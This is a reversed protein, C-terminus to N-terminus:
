IWEVRPPQKPSIASPPAARGIRFYVAIVEHPAVGFTKAAESYAARILDEHYASFIGRGEAAIKQHFFFIGTILHLSLGMTTAELWLREMAEGARVFAMDDNPVIIAGAASGSGYIKANQAAIARAFGARNLVSMLPWWECLRLGLQAPLPLEM